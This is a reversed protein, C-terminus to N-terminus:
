VQLSGDESGMAQSTESLYGEQLDGSNRAMQEALGGLECDIYADRYIAWYDSKFPYPNHGIDKGAEFDLKAQITPHLLHNETRPLKM